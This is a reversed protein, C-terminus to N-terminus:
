KYDEKCEERTAAKINKRIEKVYIHNHGYGKKLFFSLADEYFKKAAKRDKNHLMELNGKNNLVRAVDSHEDGYIKRFMKEAEDYNSRAKDYDCRAYHNGINNLVGALYPDGNESKYIKKARNYYDLIGADDKLPRIEGENLSFVEGFTNGVKQASFFYYEPYGKKEEEENRLICSFNGINTYTMATDIHGTGLYEECIKKAQIYKVKPLINVLAKLVERIPEELLGEVSGRQHKLLEKLLENLPEKPLELLEKLLERLVERTPKELLVEISEKPHKLLEKLLEVTLERPHELIEKPIKIILGKPLEKLFEIAPEKLLDEQFEKLFKRTSEKQFEKLSEEPIELLEKLLETTFGKPLELLEKLFVTMLGKPHEKLAVRTPEEPLCELFEKLFDRIHEKQFKKSPGKPLKLLEKLLETTFEKPLELLEKLFAMMLGKPHEKLAERTPEELLDELFEKLFDRIHEKQLEKLSEKPLELLEKLLETTFEKPLKLLEKLLGMTFEKPSEEIYEDARIREILKGYNNLAKVMVEYYKIIEPSLDDNSHQKLFMECRNIVSRFIRMAEASNNNMGHCLGINNHVGLALPHNSGYTREYVRHANELYYLAELITGGGQGNINGLNNYVMATDPHDPGQIKMYIDLAKKCCMNAIKLPDECFKLAPPDSCDEKYYRLDYFSLGIMNYTAAVELNAGRDANIVDHRDLHSILDNVYKCRKFSPCVKKNCRKDSNKLMTREYNMYANAYHWSYRGFIKEYIDMAKLFYEESDMYYRKKFFIEGMNEYSKATERHLKGLHRERIKLAKKHKRFAPEYYGFKEMVVALSSLTTAASPHKRLKKWSGKFVKKYSDLASEYYGLKDYAAAIGEYTDATRSSRDEWIEKKLIEQYEELVSKYDGKDLYTKVSGHENGKTPFNIETSRFSGISQPTIVATLRTISDQTVEQKRMTKGYFYVSLIGFIIALILGAITLPNLEVGFIM